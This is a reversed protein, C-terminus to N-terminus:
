DMSESDLLGRAAHKFALSEKSERESQEKAYERYILKCSGAFGKITYDTSRAWKYHSVLKPECILPDCQIDAHACSNCLNRYIIQGIRIQESYDDILELFSVPPRRYAAVPCYRVPNPRKEM